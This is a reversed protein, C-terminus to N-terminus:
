KTEKLIAETKLKEAEEMNISALLDVRWLNRMGTFYSSSRRPADYRTLM